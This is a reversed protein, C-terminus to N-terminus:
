LQATWYSRRLHHFHEADTSDLLIAVPNMHNSLVHCTTLVVSSSFRIQNKFNNKLQASDKNSRAHYERSAMCLSRMATDERMASRPSWPACAEPATASPSLQLMHFRGLGPISVTDGANPLRIRLWQVM